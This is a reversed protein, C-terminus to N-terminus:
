HRELKNSCIGELISKGQERRFRPDDNPGFLQFPVVSQSQVSGHGGRLQAAGCDM